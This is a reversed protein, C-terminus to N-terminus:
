YKICKKTREVKGINIKEALYDPTADRGGCMANDKMEPSMDLYNDQRYNTLNLNKEDIAYTAPRLFM